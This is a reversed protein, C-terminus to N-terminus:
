APSPQTSDPEGRQGAFLWISVYLIWLLDLGIFIYGVPSISGVALIASVWALWTPWVRARFTVVATAGILAALAVPLARNGNSPNPDPRRQSLRSDSLYSM